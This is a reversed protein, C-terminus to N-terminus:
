GRFGFCFHWLGYGFGYRADAGFKLEKKMFVAESELNDLADFRIEQRMQLLLPRVPQSLDMLFWADAYPGRLRPSKVVTTTNQNVNSVAVGGENVIEAQTIRRALGWLKPGVMLTTAEVDLPDGEEDLVESMVQLGAEYNAANLPGPLLNSQVPGQGDRHQDSFFFAGDYSLGDSIAPRAGDFGNLLMDVLFRPRHQRARQALMQIRPRVQSLKDDLIENRHVRIGNAWDRNKVRFGEARLGSLKREDLWEEFGPVTGMWVYDEAEGDSQVEMAVQEIPDAQLGDLAGEFTMRFSIRSRAIKAKDAISSM